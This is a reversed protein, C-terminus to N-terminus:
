KASWSKQKKTIGRDDVCNWPHTCTLCASFHNYLGEM